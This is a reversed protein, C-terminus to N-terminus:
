YKFKETKIYSSIEAFIHFNRNNTMKKAKRNPIVSIWPFYKILKEDYEWPETEANKLKKGNDM